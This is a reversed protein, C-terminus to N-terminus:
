VASGVYLIRKGTKTRAEHTVPMSVSFAHRTGGNVLALRPMYGPMPPLEVSTTTPVAPADPLLRYFQHSAAVLTNISRM